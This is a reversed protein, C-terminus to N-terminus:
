IPPPEGQNGSSGGTPNNLRRRKEMMKQRQKQRRLKRQEQDMFNNPRTMKKKKLEELKNNRLEERKNKFQDSDKRNKNKMKERNAERREKRLKKRMERKILKKNKKLNKTKEKWKALREKRKEKFKSWKLENRNWKGLSERIKQKRAKRIERFKQKKESLSDFKWNIKKRLETDRMKKFTKDKEIFLSGGKNLIDNQDQNRVEVAGENISLLIDRSKPADIMFQTGRVGFTTERTKVLMSENDSKKLVKIFFTGTEMLLSAPREIEESEEYQYAFSEFSFQAPGEVRQVSHNDLKVVVQANDKLVVTENEELTDGKNVKQPKNVELYKYVDGKVHKFVVQAYLANMIVLSLFLVKM